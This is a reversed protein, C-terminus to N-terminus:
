IGGKSDGANAVYLESEKVCAVLACSGVYAARAFGKSFAERSFALFENELQDFGLTLADSMPKGEQLYKDIYTHLKNKAFESLQWGGHGDFVATYYGNPTQKTM